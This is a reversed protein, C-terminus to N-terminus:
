PSKVTLNEKYDNYLWGLEDGGRLTVQRNIVCSYIKVTNWVMCNLHRSVTM